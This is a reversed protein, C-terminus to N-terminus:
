FTVERLYAKLNQDEEMKELLKDTVKGRAQDETLGGSKEEDSQWIVNEGEATIVTIFCRGYSIVLGFDNPPAEHFSFSMRIKKDSEKDTLTFPTLSDLIEFSREYLGSSNDGETQMQVMLASVLSSKSVAPLAYNVSAALETDKLPSILRYTYSTEGPLDQVTYLWEFSGDPNLVIVGLNDGKDTSVDLSFAGPNRGSACLVKGTLTIQEMQTLEDPVSPLPLEIEKLLEEARMLLLTDISGTKGFLDMKVKRGTYNERYETYARDITKLESLSDRFIDSFMEDIRKIMDQARKEQIAEWEMKSLRMYYWYGDGQSYWTEVTEVAELDQEVNQRINQEVLYSEGSESSDTAQIDLSSEISAYIESSLEALARSRALEKDDAQNGTNSGGIGIYYLSGGPRDTIWQPKGNKDQTEPGSTTVCSVSLALIATFFFCLQLKRMM